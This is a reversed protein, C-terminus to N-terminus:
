KRKTLCCVRDHRSLDYLQKGELSYNEAIKIIDAGQHEGHELLIIGNENLLPLYYEFIAKYFILGDTGGDLAAIPEYSLEKDLEKIDATKIYPPNSLIADFKRSKETLDGKLVDAQFFEIRNSVGNTKANEKAIKLTDAFLDCAIASCDCRSCLVSIAICGSGTCLDAFVANQPLNAIAYDVLLETDSRPILCNQNVVYQEKYFGWSGLIYQLPYHTLRKKLASNLKESNYNTNRNLLIDAPTIRYFHSILLMAENEVDNIDACHLASCIEKYTM